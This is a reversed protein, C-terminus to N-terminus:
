KRTASHAQKNIFALRKRITENNISNFVANLHSNPGFTLPKGQKVRHNFCALFLAQELTLNKKFYNLCSLTREIPYIDLSHVDVGLDEWNIVANGNKTFIAEIVVPDYDNNEDNISFSSICLGTQVDWVKTSYLCRTVITNGRDNFRASYIENKHEKLVHLRKGTDINWIEANKGDITVMLDGIQSFIDKHIDNHIDENYLSGSITHLLIGKSADWVEIVSEEKGTTIIKTGSKDFSVSLLNKGFTHECEGTKLNWIQASRKSTVVIRNGKNDFSMSSTLDIIQSLEHLREGTQTDIIKLSGTDTDQVIIALKKADHSFQATLIKENIDISKGTELNCIKPKFLNGHEDKCLTLIKNRNSSTISNYCSSSRRAGDGEAEDENFLTYDNRDVLIDCDHTEQKIREIRGDPAIIIIDNDSKFITKHYYNYPSKDKSFIEFKEGNTENWGWCIIRDDMVPSEILENGHSNIAMFPDSKVDTEFHTSVQKYTVRLIKQILEPNTKIIRQAIYKSLHPAINNMKQAYEIYPGTEIFYALFGMDINDAQASLVDSNMGVKYFLELNKQKLLERAIAQAALDILEIENQESPKKTRIDLYNAAFFIKVLNNLSYIDLQNGISDITYRNLSFDHLMEFLPKLSKWVDTTINQLPLPESCEPFDDIMNQMTTSLACLHKPFDIIDKTKGNFLELKITNSSSSSSSTLDSYAPSIPEIDMTDGIGVTDYLQPNLENSRKAKKVPAQSLRDGARCRKMANNNYFIGLSLLLLLSKLTIKIIKM